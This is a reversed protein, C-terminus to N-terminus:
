FLANKFIKKKVFNIKKECLFQFKEILFHCSELIGLASTVERQLFEPSQTSSKSMLLFGADAEAASDADAATVRM